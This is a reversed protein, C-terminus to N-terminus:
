GALLIMVNSAKRTASKAIAAPQEIRSVEAFGYTSEIPGSSVAVLRSLRACAKLGSPVFMPTRSAAVSMRGLSDSGTFM